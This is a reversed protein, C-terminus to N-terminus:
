KPAKIGTSVVGATASTRFFGSIDGGDAPFILRWHRGGDETSYLGHPCRPSPRDPDCREAWGHRSDPWPSEVAGSAPVLALASLAGLLLGGARLRPIMCSAIM